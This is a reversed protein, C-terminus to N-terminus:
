LEHVARGARWCQLLVATTVIEESGTGVARTREAGATFLAQGIQPLSEKLLLRATSTGIRIRLRLRPSRAMALAM